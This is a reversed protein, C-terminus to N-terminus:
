RGDSRGVHSTRCCSPNRDDDDHSWKHGRCVVPVNLKSRGDQASTDTSINMGPTELM